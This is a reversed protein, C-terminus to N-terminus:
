STSESAPSTENQSLISSDEGGLRAYKRAYEIKTHGMYRQLAGPDIGDGALIVGTSHRLQQPHVPFGLCAVQGARAFMKRV